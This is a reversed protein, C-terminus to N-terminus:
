APGGSSPMRWAASCEPCTVCGDHGRPVGSLDYGCSACRHHALCEAAADSRAGSAIFIYAPLALVVMAAVAEGALVARDLFEGDIRGLVLFAGLVGLTLGIAPPLLMRLGYLHARLIRHRLAAPADSGLGAASVLPVRRGSQDTITARVLRLTISLSYSSCARGRTM